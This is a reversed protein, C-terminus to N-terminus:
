WGGGGRQDMTGQRVGEGVVEPKTPKLATVGNEFGWQRAERVEPDPVEEVRGGSQGDAAM